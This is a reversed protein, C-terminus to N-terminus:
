RATPKHEHIKNLTERQLIAELVLRAATIECYAPTTRLDADNLEIVVARVENYARTLQALQKNSLSM